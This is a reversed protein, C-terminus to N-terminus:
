AEFDDDGPVGPIRTRSQKDQEQESETASSDRAPTPVDHGPQREPGSGEHSRKEGFEQALEDELRKDAKRIQGSWDDPSADPKDEYGGIKLTPAPLVREIFNQDQYHRIKKARIPAMSSIMVLEESPSLQMIEGPTLLSRASEQQSVMVHGLFPSLRNGAYNKQTRTETTTGLADAIRKATREDNTAFAIRVHCNDLISNREGYAKDIQNLSQAILYARIGYGAIYSLATEFFDLRGLAPFEDLMMLLKHRHSKDGELSETLRRGIQNLILRVLPKTRSIDSPPIVLYLSLPHKADM